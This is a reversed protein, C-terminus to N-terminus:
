SFVTLGVLTKSERLKQKATNYMRMPAKQQQAQTKGLALGMLLLSAGIVCIAPLPLSHRTRMTTEKPRRSLVGAEPACGGRATSRSVSGPQRWDPKKAAKDLNSQWRWLRGWLTGALKM